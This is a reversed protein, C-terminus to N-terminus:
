EHDYVAINVKRETWGDPYSNNNSYWFHCAINYLWKYSIGYAKQLWSGEYKENPMYDPFYSQLRKIQAAIDNFSKEKSMRVYSTVFDRIEREQGETLSWESVFKRYRRVVVAPNGGSREYRKDLVRYLALIQRTSAPHKEM